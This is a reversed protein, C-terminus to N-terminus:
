VICSACRRTATLSVILRTGDGTRHAATLQQLDQQCNTFALSVNHKDDPLM